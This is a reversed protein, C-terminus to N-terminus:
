VINRDASNGAHARTNHVAALSSSKMMLYETEELTINRNQGTHSLTPKPREGSAAPTDAQTNVHIDISTDIDYNCATDLPDNLVVVPAKDETELQKLLRALRDFKRDLAKQQATLIVQQQEIGNKRVDLIKLNGDKAIFKAIMLPLDGFQADDHLTAIFWCGKKTRNALKHFEYVIERWTPYEGINNSYYIEGNEVLLDRFLELKQMARHLRERSDHDCEGTIDVWCFRGLKVNRLFAATKLVDMFKKVKCALASESRARISHRKTVRRTVLQDM